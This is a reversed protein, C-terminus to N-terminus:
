ATETVTTSKEYKKMLQILVRVEHASLRSEYIEQALAMYEPDPISQTTQPEKGVLYDLSCDLADALRVLVQIKPERLGNEYRSLSAETINTLKALKKQTLGRKLRLETITAGIQKM